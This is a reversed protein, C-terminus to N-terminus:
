AVVVVDSRHDLLSFVPALDVGADVKRYKGAILDGGAAAAARLDAQGVAVDDGQIAGGGDAEDGDEVGVVAVVRLGDDLEAGAVHGDLAVVVRALDEAQVRLGGAVGGVVVGDVRDFRVVAGVIAH